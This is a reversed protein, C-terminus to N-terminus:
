LAVTCLLTQQFILKTDADDPLQPHQKMLSIVEERDYEGTLLLRLHYIDSERSGRKPNKALGSLRIAWTAILFERSKVSFMSGRRTASKLPIRVTPVDYVKQAGQVQFATINGGTERKLGVIPIFQLELTRTIEGNARLLKSVYELRDDTRKYLSLNACSLDNQRILEYTDSVAAEIDSCFVNADMDNHALQIGTVAEIAHSGTLIFYSDELRDVLSGIRSLLCIDAGRLTEFHYAREVFNGNNRM